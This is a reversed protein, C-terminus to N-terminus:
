EKGSAASMPADTHFRMVQHNAPDYSIAGHGDAKEIGGIRHELGPIGPPAVWQAGEPHVACQDRRLVEM